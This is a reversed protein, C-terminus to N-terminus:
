SIWTNDVKVIQRHNNVKKIFIRFGQGCKGGCYFGASFVGVSKNKDFQIRNVSLAGSFIFDYKKEWIERGKPFNDDNMLYFKGHSRIKNLNLNFSTSDKDSAIPQLEKGFYKKFEESNDFHSKEITSDFALVLKANDKKFADIKQRWIKREEVVKSTDSYLFNGKSDFIAEGTPPFTL